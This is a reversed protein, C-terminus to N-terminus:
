KPLFYRVSFEFEIIDPGNNSEVTDIYGMNGNHIVKTRNIHANIIMDHYYRMELDTILYSFKTEEKLEIPEM